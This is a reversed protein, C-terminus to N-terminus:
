LEAYLNESGIETVIYTNEYRVGGVGPLYLGPEITFVMGARLILDRDDGDFRLLPYEHVDIGVGHGLSHSFLHEVGNKAFFDRVTRDLDGLRAGIRIKAVALSAAEKVLGYFREMEAQPEGFFFCRTMDGCYSSVNAGFDCLVIQNRKLQAAGARHHPYASNEGFAVIPEFSMKSAGMKRSHFEFDIAIEREEIGEKLKKLAERYGEATVRAAEKLAQIEDLDKCVRMEKLPRPIPVWEKKPLAAAKEVTVFASDFGVKTLGKMAHSLSDKESLVVECPAKRKADEFYRGDVILTAGGPKLILRATSFWISTIYFIDSPNEILLGDLKLESAIKCAREIRM